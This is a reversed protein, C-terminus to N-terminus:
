YHNFIEIVRQLKRLYSTIFVLSYFCLIFNSEYSSDAVCLKFKNPEVYNRPLKEDLLITNM